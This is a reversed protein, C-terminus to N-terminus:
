LKLRLLMPVYFYKSLLAIFGWGIRRLFSLHNVKVFMYELVDEAGRTRKFTPSGASLNLLKNKKMAENIGFVILRRYLADKQAYTMDYGVIPITMTKEDETIGLVGVYQKTTSDELMHLSLLELKIMEQLYKATFHINHKSYKELYLSNYLSEACLLAEINLHSIKQFSFRKSGLLKKDKITDRKKAWIEKNRFIYVQRVAIMLWNNQKLNEFLKPNQVQNVSRIILSHNSYREIAKQELKRIELTEWDKSFFNTPLLFNNLTQAKDIQTYRLLSSFLKVLLASIFRQLKSKIKVLEDQSYNVILEYPSAVYSNLKVEDTVTTVIFCDDIMYYDFKTELKKILDTADNKQFITYLSKSYNM